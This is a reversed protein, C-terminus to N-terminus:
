NKGAASDRQKYVTAEPVSVRATSCRPQRFGADIKPFRLKRSIYFTVGALADLEFSKPPGYHNYPFTFCVMGIHKGFQGITYRCFLRCTM